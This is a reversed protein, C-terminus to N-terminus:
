VVTGGFHARVQNRWEAQHGILLVKRTWVQRDSGGLDKCADILRGHNAQNAGKHECPDYPVPILHFCSTLTNSCLVSIRRPGELLWYSALSPLLEDLRNAM